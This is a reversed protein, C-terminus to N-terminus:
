IEPVLAGSELRELALKRADFESPGLLGRRYLGRLFDLAPSAQKAANCEHCCAVVNRYSNDGGNVTPVVHDLVWNSVLERLCYFCRSDERKLLVDALRRETYFDVAEIDVSEECVDASPLVPIEDPLLVRIHHGDKSREEIKLCGKKNMSRIRDRISYESMSLRAALKAVSFLASEKGEARTHRVLHYYLSREYADLQLGQMLRDEIDKLTQADM